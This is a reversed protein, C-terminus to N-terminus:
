ELVNVSLLLKSSDIKTVTIKRGDLIMSNDNTETSLSLLKKMVDSAWGGARDSLTVSVSYSKISKNGDLVYNYSFWGDSEKKWFDENINISLAVTAEKTIRYEDLTVLGTKQPSIYVGGYNDILDSLSAVKLSDIYTRIEESVEDLDVYKSSVYSLDEDIYGWYNRELISPTEFNDYNPQVIYKGSLDIIGIMDDDDEALFRDPVGIEYIKEFQPPVRWAGTKDILGWLRAKIDCAPAVDRMEFPLVARFKPEIVWNGDKDIFGWDDTTADRVAALSSEGFPMADSFRPNILYDGNEDLWGFKRGSKVLYNKGDIIIRNYKYDILPKEMEGYKGSLYAIGWKGNVKMPLHKDLLAQRYNNIFRYRENVYKDFCVSVNYDACYDIGWGMTTNITDKKCEFLEWGLADFTGLLIRKDIIYPFLMDTISSSIFKKNGKRNVVGFITDETYVPTDLIFLAYGDYFPFVRYADKMEFLVKGKKDIAKPYGGEEVVWAIGDSFPVVEDYPTNNLLKGKKNMFYFGVSDEVVSFGDYFLSAYEWKGLEPLEKGNKISVFVANDDEDFMPIIELDYTGLGRTFTSNTKEGGCATLFLSIICYFAFQLLLKKTM